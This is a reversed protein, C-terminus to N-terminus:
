YLWSSQLSEHQVQFLMSTMGWCKIQSTGQGLTSFHGWHDANRAVGSITPVIWKPPNLLLWQFEMMSKKKMEWIVATPLHAQSHEHQDSPQWIQESGKDNETPNQIRKSCISLTEPCTRWWHGQKSSGGCAGLTRMHHMSLGSNKHLWIELKKKPITHVTQRKLLFFHLLSLFIFVNREM